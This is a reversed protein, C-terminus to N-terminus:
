EKTMSVLAVVEGGTSESRIFGIGKAYWKKESGAELLPWEKTRVCGTYTGAPVTVTEDLAIGVAGDSGRRGRLGDSDATNREDNIFGSFTEVLNDGVGAGDSNANPVSMGVVEGGGGGFAGGSTVGQFVGDIGFAEEIGSLHM